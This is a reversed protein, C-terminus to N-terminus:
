CVSGVSLWEPRDEERTERLIRFVERILGSEGDLGERRGAISFSQCPAGFCWCDCKPVGGGESQGSMPRTGNAM